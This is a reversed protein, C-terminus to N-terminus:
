SVISGIGRLVALIQMAIRNRGKIKSLVTSTTCNCEVGGHFLKHFQNRVEFANRKVQPRSNLASHLRESDTGALLIQFQSAM